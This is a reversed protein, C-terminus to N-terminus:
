VSTDRLFSVPTARSVGVAQRSHVHKKKRGTRDRIKKRGNWKWTGGYTPAVLSLFTCCASQLPGSWSVSEFSPCNLEFKAVHIFAIKGELFVRILGSNTYQYHGLYLVPAKFSLLNGLRPSDRPFKCRM